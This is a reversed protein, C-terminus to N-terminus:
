KCIERLMKINRMDSKNFVCEYLHCNVFEVYKMDSNTFDVGFINCDGFAVGSLDNGSQYSMNSFTCDIRQRPIPGATNYRPKRHTLYGYKQQGYAQNGETAETNYPAEKELPALLVGM